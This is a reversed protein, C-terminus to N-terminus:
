YIWAWKGFYSQKQPSKLKAQSVARLILGGGGRGWLFPINAL